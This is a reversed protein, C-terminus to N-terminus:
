KGSHFFLEPFGSEEIALLGYLSAGPSITKNFINTEALNNKQKSNSTEAVVANGIGILLPIFNYTFNSYGQGNSEGWEYGIGALGYFLVFFESKQRIAKTYEIPYLIQINKGSFTKIFFNDRTILLSSDSNNKIKIAILKLSKNREKRAYPKNRVNQQVDYFYSVQVGETLLKENEFNYISPDIEHFKRACGSILLVLFISLTTNRMRKRHHSRDKATM